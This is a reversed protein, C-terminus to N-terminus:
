ACCVSSGILDSFTTSGDRRRWPDLLRGTKSGAALVIRPTTPRSRFADFRKQLALAKLHAVSM